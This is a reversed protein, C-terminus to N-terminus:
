SIWALDAPIVGVDIIRRFGARGGGTQAGPDPLSKLSTDPAPVVLRDSRM